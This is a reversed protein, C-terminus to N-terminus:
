CWPRENGAVAGLLKQEYMKETLIGEEARGVEIKLGLKLGAVEKVEPSRRM